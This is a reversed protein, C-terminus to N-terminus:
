AKSFDLGAFSTTIEQGGKSPTPPPTVSVEEKPEIGIIKMEIIDEIHTFHLVIRVGGGQENRAEGELPPCKEIM